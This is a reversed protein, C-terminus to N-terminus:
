AARQGTERWASTAESLLYGPITTTVGIKLARLALRRLTPNKLVYYGAVAGAAVLVLNTISHATARTM